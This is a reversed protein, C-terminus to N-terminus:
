RLPRCPPFFSYPLPHLPPLRLRLAFSVPFGSDPLRRFLSALTRSSLFSCVVRPPLPAPKHRQRLSSACILPLRPLHSLYAHTQLLRCLSIALPSPQLFPFLRDFFPCPRSRTRDGLFPAHARPPLPSPRTSELRRILETSSLLTPHSQPRPSHTPTTAPGPLILFATTTFLLAVNHSLSLSCCYRPSPSFPAFPTKSLGDLNSRNPPDRFEVNMSGDSEPMDLRGIQMICIIQNTGIESPKPYPCRSQM